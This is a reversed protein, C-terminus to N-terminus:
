EGQVLSVVKSSTMDKGKEEVEPSYQFFSFSAKLFDDKSDLSTSYTESYLDCKKEWIKLM